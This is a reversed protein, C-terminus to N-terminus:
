FQYFFYFIFFKFFYFFLFIFFYGAKEFARMSGPICFESNIVYYPLSTQYPFLAAIYIYTCLILTRNTRKLYKLALKFITDCSTPVNINPVGNNGIIIIINWPQKMEDPPSAMEFMKVLAVLVVM